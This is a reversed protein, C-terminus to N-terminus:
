KSEERKEDVLITAMLISEHEMCQVIDCRVQRLGFSSYGLRSQQIMLPRPLSRCTANVREGMIVMDESGGVEEEFEGMATEAKEESAYQVLYVLNVLKAHPHDPWDSKM